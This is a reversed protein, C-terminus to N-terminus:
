SHVRDLLRGYAEHEVAFGAAEYAKYGEILDKPDRIAATDTQRWAGNEQTYFFELGSCTNMAADGKERVFLRITGWARGFLLNSKDCDVHRAIELADPAKGDLLKNTEIDALQELQAHLRAVDMRAWTVWATALVVVVATVILDRRSVEIM